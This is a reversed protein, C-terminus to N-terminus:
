RVASYRMAASATGSASWRRSILQMGIGTAIRFNLFRQRIPTVEFTLRVTLPVVVGDVRQLPKLGILFEITAALDVRTSKDPQSEARFVISRKSRRM